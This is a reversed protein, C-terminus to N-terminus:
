LGLDKALSIAREARRANDLLGLGRQRFLYDADIQETGGYRLQQSQSARELMLPTLWDYKVASALLGLEALRRDGDWGGSALGDLYAVRVAAELEPLMEADVFHDFSADPILNGVDEGLAGDGVFAWDLLAISGDAQRILNKSWFDLHSLVRPLAASIEYLRDRTAHLWCAADRLAPPFNREVLPQHWAEEDFLRSWDVPKESSYDRLFGKSLWDHGATDASSLLCGQARGLSRAADAYEAIGWVEGPRGEVYELLLVIREDGESIAVLEPAVIGGSEFVNVLGHRYAIGERAWYNWRRPDAAGKTWHADWASGPTEGDAALCKLVMRRGGSTVVWIGPTLWRNHTFEEVSSASAGPAVQEFAERWGIAAAMCGVYPM